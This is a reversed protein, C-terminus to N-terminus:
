FAFQMLRRVKKGLWLELLDVKRFRTHIKAEVGKEELYEEIINEIFNLSKKEETM